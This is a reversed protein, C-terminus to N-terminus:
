PMYINTGIDSGSFSGDVPDVFGCLFGGGFMEKWCFGRAIGRFFRGAFRLLNRGYTSEKIGFERLFGHAVGHSYYGEIWGGLFMRNQIVYRVLYNPAKDLFNFFYHQIFHLCVASSFTFLYRGEDTDIRMEGEMLGNKWTGEITKPCNEVKTLKGTRDM